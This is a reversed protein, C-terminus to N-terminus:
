GEFRNDFITKVPVGASELLKAGADAVAERLEQLQAVLRDYDSALRFSDNITELHANHARQLEARLADCHTCGHAEEESDPAPSM